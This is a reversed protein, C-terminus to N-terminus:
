CAGYAGHLRAWLATSCVEGTGRSRRESRQRSTLRSRLCRFILHSNAPCFVSTHLTPIGLNIDTPLNPLCITVTVNQAPNKYDWAYLSSIIWFGTWGPQIQVLSPNIRWIPMLTGVRVRQIPLFGAARLPIFNGPLLISSGPSLTKRIELSTQIPLPVSSPLMCREMRLLLGIWNQRDALLPVSDFQASGTKIGFCKRRVTRCLLPAVRCRFTPM